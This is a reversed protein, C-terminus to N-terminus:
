KSTHHDPDTNQLHWLIAMHEVTMDLIDQNIRPCVLELNTTKTIVMVERYCCSPAFWRAERNSTGSIILASCRQKLYKVNKLASESFM